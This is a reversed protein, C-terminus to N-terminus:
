GTVIPAAEGSIEGLNTNATWTISLERTSRNFNSVLSTVALVGPVGEIASRLLADVARLNPSKTLVRDFWPIGASQDWFVEGLITQLRIQVAQKIAALDQTFTFDGGALVFKGTAFDFALDRARPLATRSVAGTTVAPTGGISASSLLGGGCSGSFRSPFGGGSSGEFVVGALREADSPTFGYLGDGLSLVTPPTLVTGDPRVYTNVAPTFGTAPAGTTVDLLMLFVAVNGVIGFHYRPFALAGADVIVGIGISEDALTPDFGYLGGGLNRVIPASSLRSVGQRDRYAIITPAATTLPAGAFDYATLQYM